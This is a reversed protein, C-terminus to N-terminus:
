GLRGGVQDLGQVAPLVFTNEGGGAVTELFGHQRRLCARREQGTDGVTEDLGERAEPNLKRSVLYCGHDGGAQRSVLDEGGGLPQNLVVKLVQVGLGARRRIGCAGFQEFPEVRRRM